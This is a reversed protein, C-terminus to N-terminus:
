KPQCRRLADDIEDPTHVGWGTQAFRVLGDSDLLVFRPTQEAGFLIRMGSGDLIPFTLKGDRHQARVLETDDTVALAMLSIQSNSRESLKKAYALIDKGLSTAPNFFVIVVPKGLQNKLAVTQEQTFSSVTFNPARQGITLARAHVPPPEVAHAVAGDGKRANELLTKVHVFTQRYPSNPQREIHFNVRNLLADVHQRNPGQQNLLARADGFFQAAQTLEQKREQFLTSPYRLHSELDYRVTMRETPADRAPDRREIIREVRQAVFLQPHLWITDRRRWATHDARSKEWDETQQVGALKICTLGGCMETGVVQWRLVPRRDEAVEWSSNRGIKALPAAVIFGSELTPPGQIPIELPKKDPLRPRGHIDVNALQVKMSSPGAHKKDSDELRLSTILGTQWEKAGSDLVMMSADLRFRQQHLVSPILKEEIYEGRYVLELGPALQPALQWELRDPPQALSLACSLLCISRIM